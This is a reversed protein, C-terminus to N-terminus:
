ENEPDELLKEIDEDYDDADELLKDIDDDYLPDDNDVIYEALEDIDMFDEPYDTTIINGYGNFTFYERNPNASSNEDNSDHGFYFRNLMNFLGDASSTDFLEPLFDMYEIRNDDRRVEGCYENWLSVKRDRDMDEIVDKITAFLDKKTDTM